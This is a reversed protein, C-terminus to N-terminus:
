QLNKPFIVSIPLYKTEFGLIISASISFFDFYLYWNNSSHKTVYVEEVPTELRASDCASRSVSGACWPEDRSESTVKRGGPGGLTSYVVSSADLQKILNYQSPVVAVTYWFRDESEYVIIRLSYYSLVINYLNRIFYTPIKQRFTCIQWWYMSSSGRNLEITIKMHLAM